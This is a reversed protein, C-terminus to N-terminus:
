LYIERTSLLFHDVPNIGFVQVAYSFRNKGYAMSGTYSAGIASCIGAIEDEAQFVKAGLSKHRALEM